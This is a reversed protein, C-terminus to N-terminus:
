MKSPGGDDAGCTHNRIFSHSLPLPLNRRSESNSSIRLSGASLALVWKAGQQSGPVGERIGANHFFLLKM